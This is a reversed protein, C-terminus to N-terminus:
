FEDGTAEGGNRTALAQWVGPKPGQFPQPQGTEPDVPWSGISDKVFRVSGDGMLVNVGGPHLSSASGYWVFETGSGLKVRNRANPPYYASAMTDALSGSFWWGSDNAYTPDIADFASFTAIAKETGVMTQSLGDSISAVRIPGLQNIVGDLRDASEPAIQCRGGIPTPVGPMWRSGQVGAYSSAVVAAPFDRPDVPLPLRAAPYGSRPSGAAPDSPCAYTAVSAAFITSNEAGFITLSHNIANFLPAQEIGPLIGVLFGRDPLPPDCYLRGPERFRGDGTLMMGMPFCENSDHYSHLGLGIQRLNNSCRARRSSERAAQVAPLLLGVLAAIIAIAVLLEILTFGRASRPRRCTWPMRRTM